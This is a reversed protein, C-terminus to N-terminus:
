GTELRGEETKFARYLTTRAIKLTRYIEVIPRGGKKGRARAAVLGPQTRERILNRESEALAGFIHFIRKGGSATTDINKTLSKLGIRREELNTM